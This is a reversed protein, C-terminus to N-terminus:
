LRGKRFRVVLPDAPVSASTFALENEGPEFVIDPDYKEGTGITFPQGNVHVVISGNNPNEWYPVVPMRDNIVTLLAGAASRKYLRAFRIGSLIVKKISTTDVGATNLESITAGYSRWNYDVNPIVYSNTGDTITISIPGVHPCNSDWAWFLRTMNSVNGIDYVISSGVQANTGQGVLIDVQDFSEAGVAIETMDHALKYPQADVSINIKMKFRSIDTFSVAARGEYYWEPDCDAIVTVFQGHIENNLLDRLADREDANVEAMFVFQLQRNGYRITGGAAETLDLLGDAGPIDVLRTKTEPVGFDPPKSTWMGYDRYSHKGNFRIGDFVTM